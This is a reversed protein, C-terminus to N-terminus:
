GPWIEYHGDLHKLPESNPSSKGARTGAGMRGTRNVKKKQRPAEKYAAAPQVPFKEASKHSSVCLADQVQDLGEEGPPHTVVILYKKVILENECEYPKEGTHMRYHRDLHSKRSFDKERIDCMFLKNGTHTQYNTKLTDKRRFTKPFNRRVLVSDPFGLALANDYKSYKMLQVQILDSVGSVSQTQTDVGNSGAAVIMKEDTKLQYNEPRYGSEINESFATFSANENTRVDIQTSAPYKLLVVEM